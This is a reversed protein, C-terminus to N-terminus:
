FLQYVDVLSYLTMNKMMWRSTLMNDEVRFISAVHEEPFNTVDVLICPTMDEMMWRSTLLNDEIEFISAATDESV